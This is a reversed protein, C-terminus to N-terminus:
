APIGQIPCFTKMENRISETVLYVQNLHFGGRFWAENAVHRMTKLGGVRSTNSKKRIRSSVPLPRAVFMITHWPFSGSWWRLSSRLTPQENLVVKKSCELSRLCMGGAAHARDTEFCFQLPIFTHSCHPCFLSSGLSDADNVSSESAGGEGQLSHRTPIFWPKFLGFVVRIRHAEM